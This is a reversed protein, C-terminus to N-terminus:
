LRCKTTYAKSKVSTLYHVCKCLCMETVKGVLLTVCVEKTNKSLVLASFVVVLAHIQTHKHSTPLPLILIYKM